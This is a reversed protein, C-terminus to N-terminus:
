RRTGGPAAACYELNQGWSPSGQSPRRQSACGKAPSEQSKGALAFALSDNTYITYMVFAADRRVKEKEKEELAKMGIAALEEQTMTVRKGGVTFTSTVPPAFEYKVKEIIVPEPQPQSAAATTQAMSAKLTNKYYVLFQDYKQQDEETWPAPTPTGDAQPPLNSPPRASIVAAQAYYAAYYQALTLFLLPYFCFHRM